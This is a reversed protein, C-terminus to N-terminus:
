PRTGVCSGFGCRGAECDTDFACSPWPKPPVCRSDVCLAGLVCPRTGDCGDGVVHAQSDRVCIRSAGHEYSWRCRFGSALGEPFDPSFDVCVHPGLRDRKPPREGCIWGPDIGASSVGAARESGVCVAVGADDSCTWEGEDPQRAYRQICTTGECSFGSAASERLGCTRASGSGYCRFGLSSPAPFPPLARAVLLPGGPAGWCVRLDSVDACPEGRDDAPAAWHTATEIRTNTSEGSPCGPSLLALAVAGFLPSGAM